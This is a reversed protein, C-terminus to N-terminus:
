RFQMGYERTSVQRKVFIRTTVFPAHQLVLVLDVVTVVAAVARPAHQAHDVQNRLMAAFQM